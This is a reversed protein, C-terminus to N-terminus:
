QRRYVKERSQDRATDPSRRPLKIETTMPTQCIEGAHPKACAPLMQQLHASCRRQPARFADNRGPPSLLGRQSAPIHRQAGNTVTADELAPNLFRSIAGGRGSTGGGFEHEPAVPALTAPNPLVIALTPSLASNSRVADDGLLRQAIFGCRIIKRLREALSREVPSGAVGTCCFAWCYQTRLTTRCVSATFTQKDRPDPNRYGPRPNHNHSDKGM